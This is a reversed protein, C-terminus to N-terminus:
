GCPGFRARYGASCSRGRPQCRSWLSTTRTKALRTRGKLGLLGIVTFPVRRIRLSLGIPNEDGFLNRAVTQGVLVVKAAGRHDEATIPRGDVIDWEKVELTEPTIGLVGTAWNFNRHVVQMPTHGSAPAAAQVAPVQHQIAIADDETLTVQSGQGGRVGSSSRSGATVIILNAGLSQIQETVRAHAGAGVAVMAIVSGVGIIIGLMALSSRLKNVRLAHAASRANELIMLASLAGLVPLDAARTPGSRGHRAAPQRLRNTM